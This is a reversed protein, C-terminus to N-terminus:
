IASATTPSARRGARAARRRPWRNLADYAYSIQEGTTLDTQSVIKGNNQPGSFNYHVNWGPSTIQTLQLTPNYSRTETGWSGGSLSLLQGGPGYSAAGIVTSGDHPEMLSYPSFIGM